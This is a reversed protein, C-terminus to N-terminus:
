KYGDLSHAICSSNVSCLISFMRATNTAHLLGICVYFVMCLIHAVVQAYFKNLQYSMGYDHARDELETHNKYPEWKLWRSATM